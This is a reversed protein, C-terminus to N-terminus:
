AIIGSRSGGDNADDLVTWPPRFERRPVTLRVGPPERPFAYSCFDELIQPSAPALAATYISRTNRENCARLETRRAATCVALPPSPDLQHHHEEGHRADVTGKVSSGTRGDVNSGNTSTTSSANAYPV